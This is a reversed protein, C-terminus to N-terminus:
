SRTRLRVLSLPTSLPTSDIDISQLLECYLPCAEALFLAASGASADTGACCLRESAAVGTLYRRGLQKSCQRQSYVRVRVGARWPDM